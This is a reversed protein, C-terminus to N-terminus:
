EVGEISGELGGDFKFRNKQIFLPKYGYPTEVDIYDGAELSPDGNYEFKMEYSPAYELQGLKSTMTAPYKLSQDEIELLVEKQGEQKNSVIYENHTDATELKTNNYTYTLTVDNGITGTVQIFCYSSTEYKVEANTAGSFTFTGYQSDSWLYNTYTKPIAFNQVSKTLKVTENFLVIDDAGAEYTLAGPPYNAYRKITNIKDILKFSADEILESKTITEVINNAIKKINLVNNRNAFLLAFNHVAFYKSWSIADIFKIGRNYFANKPDVNVNVNVGSNSLIGYLTNNTTASTTDLFSSTCLSLGDELTKTQLQKIINKGVLTTTADANNTYSEFYFEGMKVYEVGSNETLVGVYPKILTNESLYPVIGSPNLPNFLNSMNNLIINTENTPVEEVLKNVEEDVTFEILDQDKYVQTIGFDLENIYLKRDPYMVDNITLIFGTTTKPEDFIIQVIGSENNTINTTSNDSYQVTLDTPINTRFYFTLGNIQHEGFACVIEPRQINEFLDDSIFGSNINEASNSSMTLCSGDLPLYDLSGYTNVVRKRDTMQNQNTYTSPIYTGPITTSNWNPLDYLVEVYGKIKREPAKIANKFENSVPIM